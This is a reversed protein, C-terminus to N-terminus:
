DPRDLSAALESLGRAAAALRLFTWWDARETEDVPERRALWAARGSEDLDRLHRVYGAFSQERGRYRERAQRAPDRPGLMKHVTGESDVVVGIRSAPEWYELYEGSKGADWQRLRLGSDQVAAALDDFALRDRFTGYRDGLQAEVGGRAALWALRHVQAGYYAVSQGNWGFEILGLDTLPPEIEVGFVAAVEAQTSTHDLGLVAGTIVLDVFFDLDNM